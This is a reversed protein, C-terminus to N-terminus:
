LKEAEDTEHEAGRKIYDENFAELEETTMDTDSNKRKGTTKFYVIVGIVFALIILIFIWTM